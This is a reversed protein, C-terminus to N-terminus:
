IGFSLKMEIDDFCVKTKDTAKQWCRMATDIVQLSFQLLLLGKWLLVQFWRAIQSGGAESLYVFMGPSWSLLLQGKLSERQASPGGNSCCDAEQRDQRSNPLLRTELREAHPIRKEKWSFCWTVSSFSCICFLSSASLLFSQRRQAAFPVFAPLSHSKPLYMHQDAPYNGSRKRGLDSLEAQIIAIEGSLCASRPTISFALEEM